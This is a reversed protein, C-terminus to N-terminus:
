IKTATIKGIIKNAHNFLRQLKWNRLKKLENKKLIKLKIFIRMAVSPIARNNGDVIKIVGGIKKNFDAFLLVGEAGGKCFVRGKTTEIVNSDFSNKGGILLPYQNISKLLVNLPKTYKTETENRKILNVMSTAINSLPFAYQPAGCGDEAISCKKIKTDM